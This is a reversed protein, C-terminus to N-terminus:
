IQFVQSGAPNAVHRLFHCSRMKKVGGQNCPVQGGTGRPSALQVPSHLNVPMWAHWASGYTNDEEGGPSLVSSDSHLTPPSFCLQKLHYIKSSM